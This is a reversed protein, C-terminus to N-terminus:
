KINKDICIKGIAYNNYNYYDEISYNVKVNYYGNIYKIYKKGISMIATNTNSIVNEVIPNGLSVKEFVWKSKAAIKFPMNVNVLKAFVIDSDSFHNYGDNAYEITMRNILFINQSKVLKLTYKGFKIIEPTKENKKANDVTEKSIFVAYFRKLDQMLYFDYSLNNNYDLKYNLKQLGTNDFFDNYINLTDQNFQYKDKLNRTFAKHDTFKIYNGNEDYIDYVCIKNYYNLKNSIKLNPNLDDIYKSLLPYEYIVRHSRLFSYDFSPDFDGDYYEYDDNTNTIDYSIDYDNNFAGVIPLTPKSLDIGIIDIIRELEKYFNNTHLEVFGPEYMVANFDIYSDNIYNIQKHYTNDYKYKLKGFKLDLDPIKFNFTHKYWTGNCLIDITFNNKLWYDNLDKIGFMKPIVIFSDYDCYNNSFSFKSEFLKEGNCSFILVCDFYNDLIIEGTERNKCIFKIPINACINNTLKYFEFKSNKCYDKSYINFLNYNKDIYLNKNYLYYTTSNNFEVNTYILNSKDSQSIPKETIGISAVNMLKIDNAFVKHKISASHVSLHIPLFYKKYMYALCSLKLMMENFSYRYYDKVFSIGYRNIYEKKDFLNELIPKGEGWLDTESSVNYTNSTEDNYKISLSVFTTTKFRNFINLMDDNINFYDLIFQSMFKNDTQLLKSLEIKDSYDFFKLSNIASSYNGCENKLNMFNILYEKLKLNYINEDISDTQYPHTYLAKVLEKPLNVGINNTNIVLEESEDVYTSGISIPCWESNDIYDINILINSIFSGTDESFGIVYFTYLDFSINNSNEGLVSINEIKNLDSLNLTNTLDTTNINFNNDNFHYLKYINSDISININKLQKSSDVIFRIPKVYYNNISLNYSYENNFWFIYNTKEFEYGIPNIDYSKLNFIHGTNDIFKM